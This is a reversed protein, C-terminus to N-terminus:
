PAQLVRCSQSEQHLVENRYGSRSRLDSTGNFYKGEERQVSSTEPETM